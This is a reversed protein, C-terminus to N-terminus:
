YTHNDYECTTEQLDSSPSQGSSWGIYFISPSYCYICCGLSVGYAVVLIVSNTSIIILISFIKSSEELLLTERAM